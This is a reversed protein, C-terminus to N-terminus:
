GGPTAAIANADITYTSAGTQTGIGARKDNLREATVVITEIANGGDASSASNIDTTAGITSDSAAANGHAAIACAMALATMYKRKM